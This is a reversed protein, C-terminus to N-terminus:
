SRKIVGEGKDAAEWTKDAVKLIYRGSKLNIPWKWFIDAVKLEEGWVGREDM